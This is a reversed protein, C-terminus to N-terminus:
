TLRRFFNSINSKKQQVQKFPIRPTTPKKIRAVGGLGDFGIKTFLNNEHQNDKYRELGPSEAMGVDVGLEAALIELDDDKEISEKLDRTILEFSDDNDFFIPTSHEKKPRKCGRLPSKLSDVLYKSPTINDKTVNLLNSSSPMSKDEYLGIKKSLSENMREATSLDKEMQDKEKQASELSEKLNSVTLKSYSLKKQVDELQDQIDAKTKQLLTYEKKLSVLYLHLTEIDPAKMIVEECDSQSSDLIISMHKMTRMQRELSVVKEKLKKANEADEMLYSMKTKMNQFSQRVNQYDKELTTRVTTLKVIENDKNLLISQLNDNENQLALLKKELNQIVKKSKEYADRCEDDTYETQTPTLSEESTNLFLKVMSRRKVSSKCM